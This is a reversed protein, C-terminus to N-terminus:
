VSDQRQLREMQEAIKAADDVSEFVRYVPEGFLVFRIEELTTAQALHRRAEQILIEACRQPSFGAIGAGIAPVAITRCGFSSKLPHGQIMAARRQLSRNYRWYLGTRTFHTRYNDCGSSIVANVRLRRMVRQICM